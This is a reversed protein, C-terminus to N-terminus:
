GCGGDVDGRNLSYGWMGFLCTQAGVEIYSSKWQGKLDLLGPRERSTLSENYVYLTPLKQTPRCVLCYCVCVCLSCLLIPSTQVFHATVQQVVVSCSRCTVPLIVGSFLWLSV